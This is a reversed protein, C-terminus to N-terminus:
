IDFIQVRQNMEDAVLIQNNHNVCVHRVQNFKGPDSGKSGFNFMYVGQKSFVSIRSNGKESIIVKGDTTIAVGYPANLMGPNNGKEGGIPNIVDGKSTLVWVCHNEQDAVIIQDENEDYVIGAPQKLFGEGISSHYILKNNVLTLIHICNCKWDTVYLKDNYATIGRPDSFQKGFKGLDTLLGNTYKRICKAEREIIYIDNNKNVHLACPGKFGKNSEIADIIKGTSTLVKVSNCHLDSVTILNNTGVAIGCPHFNQGKESCSIIATPQKLCNYAQSHPNLSVDDSPARSSLIAPLSINRSLISQRQKTYQTDHCSNSTVGKYYLDDGQVIVGFADIAKKMIEDEKFFIRITKDEGITSVFAETICDINDKLKLSLMKGKTALLINNPKSILDQASAINNEFKAVLHRFNGEAADIKLHEQDMLNQLCTMLYTERDELLKRVGEFNLQILKKMGELNALLKSREIFFDKKMKGESTHLAALQLLEQLSISMRNIFVETEDYKHLRHNDM